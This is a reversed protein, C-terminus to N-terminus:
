TKNINIDADLSVESDFIQEIDEIRVLKFNDVKSRIRLAEMEIAGRCVDKCDSGSKLCLEMENFIYHYRINFMIHELVNKFVVEKETNNLQKTLDKIFNYMTKWKRIEDVMSDTSNTYAKLYLKIAEFYKINGAKRDEKFLIDAEKKLAYAQAAFNDDTPLFTGYGQSTIKPSSFVKKSVLNKIRENLNM